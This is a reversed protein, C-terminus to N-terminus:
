SAAAPIFCRGPEQRGHSKQIQGRTPVHVQIGHGPFKSGPAPLSPPCNRATSFRDDMTIQVGPIDQPGRIAPNRQEVPIFAAAVKNQEVEALKLIVVFRSSPRAKGPLHRATPQDLRGM